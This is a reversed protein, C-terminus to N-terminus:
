DCRHFYLPKDISSELQWNMGEIQNTSNEVFSVKRLAAPVGAATFEHAGTPYVPLTVVRLKVVLDSAAEDAKEDAKESAKKNLLSVTARGYAKHCYSGVYDNLSRFPAVRPPDPWKKKAEEADKADEKADERVWDMPKKGLVHQWLRLAVKEPSVKSANMLVVVGFGAEPILSVNALFGDIGGDHTILQHGEFPAQMWGMSYSANGIKSYPKYTEQLLEPSILTTQRFVGQSLHMQLWKAMDELNSNIGGAPNMASLEYFPLKHIQKGDSAYPFAFDDSKQSKEVSLNTSTMELPTFIKDQILDEWSNLAVAESLLGITLWMYNNYIWKTRPEAAVDLHPIIEYLSRRSLGERRYWALDHRGVGTWHGMLDRATLQASAKENAIKFDPLYTQVPKDLDVLGEQKLLALLFGSFAKTTSGIAYLTKPTVPLKKEVDRYGKTFQVLPGDKTVVQVAIGPLAYEQMLEDLYKSFEQEWEPKQPQSSAINTQAYTQAYFSLFCFVVLVLNKFRSM